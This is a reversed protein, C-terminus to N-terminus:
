SCSGSRCSLIPAGAADLVTVRHRTVVGPVAVVLARSAPDLGAGRAGRDDLAGVAVTVAVRGAAAVRADRAAPPLVGFLWTRDRVADYYTLVRRAALAAPTRVTDHAAAAVDCRTGGGGGPVDLFAAVVRVGGYSCSAASLRWATGDTTGRAVYTPLTSRDPELAGPIRLSPPLDPIAPARLADRTALATSGCAALLGGLALVRLARRRSPRRRWWPTRDAEAFGARLRAGLEDLVADPDRSTM